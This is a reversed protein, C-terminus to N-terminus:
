RADAAYGHDGGGQRRQQRLRSGPSSSIPFPPRADCRHGDDDSAPGPISPHAPSRSAPCRFNSPRPRARPYPYSRRRSPSGRSGADPRPTARRLLRTPPCDRPAPVLEQRPLRALMGAAEADEGRHRDEIDLAAHAFRFVREILQLGIADRQHGIDAVFPEAIRMVEREEFLDVAAPGHDIGMRDAGIAHLVHQRRIDIIRHDLERGIGAAGDRPQQERASRM